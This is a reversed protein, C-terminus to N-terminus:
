REPSGVLRILPTAVQALWPLLPPRSDPVTLFAKLGALPVNEMAHHIKLTLEAYYAQDWPWVRLDRFIWVVSPSLLIIAVLPAVASKPALHVTGAGRKVMQEM